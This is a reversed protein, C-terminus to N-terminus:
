SGEMLIRKLASRDDWKEGQVWKIALLRCLALDDETLDDVTEISLGVVEALCENFPSRDYRDTGFRCENKDGILSTLNGILCVWMLVPKMARLKEEWNDDGEQNVLDLLRPDLLEETTPVFRRGITKLRHEDIIQRLHHTLLSLLIGYGGLNRPFDPLLEKLYLLCCIRLLPELVNDHRAPVVPALTAHHNKIYDETKLWSTDIPDAEAEPTGPRAGSRLPRPECVLGYQVAQYEETFANPNFTIVRSTKAYAYARVLKSLDSVSTTVSSSIGCFSLISSVDSEM